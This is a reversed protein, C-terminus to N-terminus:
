LVSLDIKIGPGMTACLTISVPSYKRMGDYLSKFNEELKQDEWSVKGIIQHINGKEDAKCEIQGSKIKAATKELDETMTGSKPSPMLGKPGFIMAFMVWQPMVSPKALLVDFNIKNKKIEDALADSFLAVKKEKGSGHPLLITERIAIKKKPLCRIHVEVAEDFQATSIKKLLAFAESLPYKKERDYLLIKEQYSKSRVKAKGQKQARPEDAKPQDAPKDATAFEDVTTSEAEEIDATASQDKKVKQSGVIVGEIVTKDSAISAQFM